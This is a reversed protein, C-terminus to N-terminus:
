AKTAPAWVMTMADLPAKLLGQQQMLAITKQMQPPDVVNPAPAMATKGVLDPKMGTYGSIIEVLAASPMGDKDLNENHWAIGQRLAKLFNSAAEPSKEVFSRAAVIQGVDCGPQVDEMPKAILKFTPDSLAAMRFPNVIYALDVQKNRLADLMQPFPVEKYTVSDPDGGTKAIWARAYLWLVNNRTNVAVTKGALDKGSTIGSDARGILAVLNPANPDIKTAPGVVVVDLNRSVALATSVVNSLIVDLSGGVVGPIGVAGGNLATADIEIGAKAFYGNKYAVYFPASDVIPIMGARLKLPEAARPLRAVLPAALSGLLLSRRRM